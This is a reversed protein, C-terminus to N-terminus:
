PLLSNRRGESLYFISEESFIADLVNDQVRYLKLYDIKNEM